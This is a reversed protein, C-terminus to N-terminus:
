RIVVGGRLAAVYRSLAVLDAANLRAAFGLATITVTQSASVDRLV